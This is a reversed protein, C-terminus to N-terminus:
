VRCIESNPPRAVGIGCYAVTQERTYGDDMDHNGLVHYAKGSYANWADLYRRNSPAPWCFDGLQIIFDVKTQQMAAVFAQVRELGDPLMDPHIDSIMGFRVRGSGPPSAAADSRNTGLATAVAPAVALRHLFGRRNLKAFAESSMSRTSMTDSSNDCASGTQDM